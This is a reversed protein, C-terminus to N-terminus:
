DVYIFENLGLLVQCFDLRALHAADPKKEDAYLKEQEALFATAETLESGAPPRGLTLRYGLAVVAGPEKVEGLRRALQEAAQRVVPNNLMLLAQPAITTTTRQEIGVTGDPADFLTLMPILQSRKVFFYISRRRQQLDLTGPGFLRSDLQGSAALLSDRISEAELRRPVRRWLLRNDPDIAAKQRDFAPSQQYTASTLILRHIPKLRWGQAILESALWDLLEPHSPRDGQLGFDSVTAVLGTGFHHQWLRNVIVRALLHGAGHDVDSMWNALGRRHYPSRSGAPPQLQWRTEGERTRVLLAPYGPTAVGAKQNPDGRLLFHTQELYDSGQSHLRVAPLGEGCIMAKVKGVSPGKRRHAELEDALKKWGSDNGRYWALLATREAPTPAQGPTAELRALARRVEEPLGDGAVAPPKPLTSLALRPRGISHHTNNNFRLTLTLVTGGPHGLPAALDFVAAHDKGFQPDVAWASNPNNDITAAVPLGRQEFTARAGAIKVPTEPGGSRPRATIRVDSLAFNGNNARGPGGRVLSTHALAELRIARIEPTATEVVLTYTDNAPSTGSALYSGDAQRTFTAGGASTIKTPEVVSWASVGSRPRSALYATLKNPLTTREYDALRQALTQEQETFIRRAERSLEPDLDLDQDSRVTKTFTSVLRYYDRMSIPDYKHDHCRACGVTLGLMATSMTRVIDDLEDYREKEVTNATIQTSHVGAGLFGTATLALPNTPEFEDGAIQWRVFDNYPLDLNLAKIVFDRYPWAHPRDYDHEFGHSEAFRVIDLWHRAYREGHHPSALLRDVLREYAEPRRDALFADVEDPTPPLGLLDLTARRLLNRPAASPNPRIGKEELRALIFQDIPNRAWGTTRVPPVAPRRLPRFSWFQRDEDTIAFVKPKGAGPQDLLPRDYAAGGDIWRTLDTLQAPTLRVGSSAPPMHPEDLHATLRVLKSEKGKGPVIVAGNDGGKLLAERTTLDLGGRAKGGGHCKVCADILVKRVSRTFLERSATMQRAHDPVVPTPKTPPSAALALGPLLLVALRALSPM